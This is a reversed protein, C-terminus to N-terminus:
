YRSLVHLLCFMCKKEKSLLLKFDTVIITVECSVLSLQGLQIAMKKDKVHKRLSSPVSNERPSIYLFLVNAADCLLKYYQLVSVNQFEKYNEYKRLLDVVKSRHKICTSVSIQLFLLYKEETKTETLEGVFDVAPHCDYLKYLVNTTLCGSIDDSFCADARLTIRTNNLLEIPFIIKSHASAEVCADHFRSEFQLGSAESGIM